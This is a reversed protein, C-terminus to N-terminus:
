TVRAAVDLHAEHERTRLVEALAALGDWVDVFRTTLAHLGIRVLDPARFDPVVGRARLALVVAAAHEHRVAVHGGVEEIERPSAWTCGLDALLEDHLDLALGTLLQSRARIADIGAEAVLRIGEEAVALGLVPPTGSGWAGIGDLPDYIPGTAFLGRQGWWGWVPQRVSPQLDERVWLWAPAGPGGCLHKYSCGAALDAGAGRLDLPVSGVAHSCDWLVLAGRAHAAATGGVVDAIAGTRWDVVSRAVVGIPVDVEDLGGPPVRVLPRGLQTAVAEAVFRDSPFEDPEVVLAGPRDAAAAWLLKFLNVTTSDAMLTEGPRAGLLTTGLLDGVRAPDDIWTAWSRVLGGAWEEEVVTRIRDVTALPLRGLSNGNLYVLGDDPICFRQRFGALPGAADLAEAEARSTVGGAHGVWPRRVPQAM